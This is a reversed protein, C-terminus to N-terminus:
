ATTKARALRELFARRARALPEPDKTMVFHLNGMLLSADLEFALQNADEEPKIAGSAQATTLLQVLLQYWEGIAEMVRAHVPGPRPGFEASTYAFFCGGPFVLREVHSLFNEGLQELM